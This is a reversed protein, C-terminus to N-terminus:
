IPTAGEEYVVQLVTKGVAKLTERSILKMNDDTTHHFSGFWGSAPDYNVINIMPIRGVENVFKHDDIIETQNRKVFFHSYGLRGAADWVKEVVKPAYALSYGERYFKGGEGGVMDLLIGYYATYGPKHKHRAWHQSGLCYWSELGEPLQTRGYEKEGWDEGDFLIIDVGVGPASKELHRAIELLVGVGSAGDNAGDFLANPKNKDKDAFPRTDWHAALLIRRKQEQHFSAIINKLQVRTNDFTTAEFSQETVQAGYLALKGVLYSATRTHAETNPIRPGFDVQQQVFLYASDANFEPVSVAPVNETSEVSKKERDNSCTALVASLTCIFLFHVKM